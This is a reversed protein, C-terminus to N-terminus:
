GADDRALIGPLALEVNRGPTVTHQWRLHSALGDIDPFLSAAHVGLRFLEYRVSVKDTAPVTIRAIEWDDRLDAELSQQPDRSITFLGEQAFLRDTTLKPIFKYDRDLEFPSLDRKKKKSIQGVARLCVVEGDANENERVAFFLAVLPNFSWDLLRTPLGHHQALALLEFSNGPSHRVYRPLAREFFRVLSAEYDAFTPSTFRERGISPKLDYKRRDSLGRFVWESRPVSLFGDSLETIFNAVTWGGTAAM